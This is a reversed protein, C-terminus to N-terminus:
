KKVKGHIYMRLFGQAKKWHTEGVFLRLRLEIASTMPLYDPDGSRNKQTCILVLKRAQCRLEKDGSEDLIKFLIKIFLAFLFRQQRSKAAQLETMITTATTTATTTTTTTRPRHANRILSIAFAYLFSTAFFTNIDYDSLKRPSRTTERLGEPRTFFFFHSSL